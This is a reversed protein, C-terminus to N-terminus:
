LENIRELASLAIKLEKIVCEKYEDSLWPVKWGHKLNIYNYFIAASPISKKQCIISLVNLEGNEMSIFGKRNLKEILAPNIRYFAENSFNKGVHIKNDSNKKAEEILIEVIQQDIEIQQSEKRGYHITIGEMGSTHTPIMYDLLSINKDLAWAGCVLLIKTAGCQILDEITSSIPSPGMPPIIVSLELENYTGMMIQSGAYPHYPALWDNLTFNGNEKLFELITKSFVILVNPNIKFHEVSKGSIRIAEELVKKSTICLGEEDNSIM